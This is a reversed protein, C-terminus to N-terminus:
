QASSKSGHRSGGIPSDETLPRGAVSFGLYYLEKRVARFADFSDPYVWLTVTWTRRNTKDLEARFQSTEKLADQWTEGLDSAVPIVEFSDFAFAAGQGADSAMRGMMDIRVVTYRLRFGDVPGVTDTMQTSDNLRWIREKANKVMRETLQDFPVVTVRGGLLQVHMEKGDVPKSLPAPYSEIKVSKPVTKSFHTRERELRELEAKALALDRALDYDAQSQKGLKSREEALKEEAAMLVAALYEREQKRTGLETAVHKGLNELRKTALEVDMAVDTVRKHEAEANEITDVKPVPRGVGASAILALIVLVGVVGAAVHLLSDHRPSESTISMVRPM